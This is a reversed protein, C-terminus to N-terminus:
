DKKSLIAALVADEVGCAQTLSQKPFDWTGDDWPVLLESFDPDHVNKVHEAFYDSGLSHFSYSLVTIRDQWYPWRAVGPTRAGTLLYMYMKEASNTGVELPIGHGKSGHAAILVLGRQKTKPCVCFANVPQELYLSGDEDQSGGWFTASFPYRLCSLLENQRDILKDAVPVCGINIQFIAVRGNLIAYDLCLINFADYIDYTRFRAPKQCLVDLYDQPYCGRNLGAAVKPLIYVWADEQMKKDVTIRAAQEWITTGM